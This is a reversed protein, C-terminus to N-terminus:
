ARQISRLVHLVAETIELRAHVEAELQVDAVASRLDPYAVAMVVSRYAMRAREYELEVRSADGRGGFSIERETRSDVIIGGYAPDAGLENLYRDLSTTSSVPESEAYLRM